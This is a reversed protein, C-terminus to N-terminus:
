APRCRACPRYGSAIAQDESHFRALHSPAIKRAQACTPFCYIHTTDSGVFRVGHEAERQLSVPDAGEAALLLWKNEAGGLSYAGITGDSRVVRHCPVILPVPNHSMASGVARAAGPKGAEQALWAYPRVQGRPITTAISMIQQRFPSLTRLDLPLPGPRGAEIAKGILQDWGKPPRALVVRRHYRESFEAVFDESALRVTSVGLPNFTVAVDGVPSEYLRYGDALGTALDVNVPLTPPAKHRLEALNSEINM